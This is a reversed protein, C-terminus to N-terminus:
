VLGYYDMCIWVFGYCDMCKKAKRRKKKKKKKCFGLKEGVSARLFTKPM